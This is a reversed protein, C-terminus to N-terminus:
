DIHCVLNDKNEQTQLNHVYEVLEQYCPQKELLYWDHVPVCIRLEKLFMENDAYLNIEHVGKICQSQKKGKADTYKRELNEMRCNISFLTDFIGVLYKKSIFMTRVGEQRMLLTPQVQQM